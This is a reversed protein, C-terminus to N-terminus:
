VGEGRRIAETIDRKANDYGMQYTSSHVPHCFQDNVAGINKEREALTAAQWILSLALKTSASNMYQKSGTEEWWKEFTM